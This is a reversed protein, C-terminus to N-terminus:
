LVLSGTQYRRPWVVVPQGGQWQTVAKKKATQLGNDAVAFRGFVTETQLTFLRDRVDALDLNAAAPRAQGFLQGTAYGQATHADPAAAWRNRYHSVFARNGPTPLYTRWGTSGLVAEAQAGAAQQFARAAAGIGLCLLSPMWGTRHVADLLLLADDLFGSGAGGPQFGMGMVLEPRPPDALRAAASRAEKAQTYMFLDRISLSHMRARGIAGSMLTRSFPDARYIFGVSRIGARAALDIVSHLMTGAPNLLQVTWNRGADQWLAADAATPAVCPRGYREIIPLVAGTLWSGYPAVVLDSAPVIDQYLSRAQDPASGDDALRLEVTHGGLGGTNNVQLQWLRLGRHTARGFAAYRGSLSITGGVVIRRTTDARGSRVLGLATVGGLALKLLHRRDRDMSVLALRRFTWRTLNRNAPCGIPRSSDCKDFNIDGSQGARGANIEHDTIAAAAAVARLPM